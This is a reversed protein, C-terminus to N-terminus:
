TQANDLFSGAEGRRDRQRNTSTVIVRGGKQWDEVREAVFVTSTDAAAQRKLKVWTRAIPSGHFEMRGGCCVIAPCSERDMGEVHHLRILATHKAPVPEAPTGVLLAPRAKGEPLARPRAHCDFGEECPKESSAVTLLGVELRTDRDRAFELTGAVQ